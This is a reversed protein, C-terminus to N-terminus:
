ERKFREWARRNRWNEEAYFLTFLVILGAGAIFGRKITRWCFLWRVFRRLGNAVPRLSLMAAFALGSYIMVRSRVSVAEFDSSEIDGGFVLRCWSAISGSILAVAWLCAARKPILGLIKM